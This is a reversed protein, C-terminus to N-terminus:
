RREGDAGMLLVLRQAIRNAFPRSVYDFIIDDVGAQAGEKAIAINYDHVRKSFPNTYLGQQSEFPQGDLGRVVDTAQVELYIDPTRVLKISFQVPRPEGLLNVGNM